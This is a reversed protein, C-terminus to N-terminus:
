AKEEYHLVWTKIGSQDKTGITFQDEYPEWDKPGAGDMKLDFRLVITPILLYL